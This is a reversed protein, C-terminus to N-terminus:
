LDEHVNLAGKAKLNDKQQKLKELQKALTKLDFEKDESCLIWLYVCGM